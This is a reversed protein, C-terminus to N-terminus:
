YIQNSNKKMENLQEITLVSKMYQEAKLRIAISLVLKNTLEIENDDLM